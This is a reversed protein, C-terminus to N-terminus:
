KLLPMLQDVFAQSTLLDYHHGDRALDLVDFEPVVLGQIQAPIIEKLHRYVYQPIFSHIIRCQDALENVMRICALINDVDNQNDCPVFQMRRYEDLCLDGSNWDSHSKAIEDLAWQPLQINNDANNLKDILSGVDQERRWVYSWHLILFNPQIEQLIKVAKRAIWNNSAGDMSINMTRLGTDQQLLYTWTHARPSGLGVTFSDGVCWINRRLEQMSTPWESDRFGRSNYDYSVKHPYNLFHQKDLCCEPSDLGSYECNQNIQSLLVFDPLIM